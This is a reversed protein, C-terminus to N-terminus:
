TFSSRRGIFFERLTICITIHLENKVNNNLCSDPIVLSLFVSEVQALHGQPGHGQQKTAGASTPSTTQPM